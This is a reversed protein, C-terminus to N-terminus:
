TLPTRGAFGDAIEHWFNIEPEGSMWCLYVIHDDRISPFDLLGQEISKVICGLEQIRDITRQLEAAALERRATLRGIEDDSHDKGNSSVHHFIRRLAGEVTSLEERLERSEELIAIIQPLLANAEELTFTREM